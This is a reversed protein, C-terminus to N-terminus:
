REEWEVDGLNHGQNPVVTSEVGWMQSIRGYSEKTLLSDNEPQSSRVLVPSSTLLLSTTYM